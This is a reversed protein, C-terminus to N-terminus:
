PENPEPEATIAIEFCKIPPLSFPSVFLCSGPIKEISARNKGANHPLALIKFPKEGKENNKLETRIGSFGLGRTPIKHSM